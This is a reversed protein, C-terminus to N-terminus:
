TGGEWTVRSGRPIATRDLDAFCLALVGSRTSVARIAVEFPNGRVSTVTAKQGDRPPEIGLTQEPALVVWLGDRLPLERDPYREAVEPRVYFSDIVDYVHRRTRRGYSHFRAYYIVDRVLADDTADGVETGRRGAVVWRVVLAELFYHWTRGDADIFRTSGEDTRVVCRSDPEWQEREVAAFLVAEDDPDDAALYDVTLIADRLTM